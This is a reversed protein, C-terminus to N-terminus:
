FYIVIPLSYCSWLTARQMKIYSAINHVNDIWIGNSPDSAYRCLEELTTLLSTQSGGEDMEHGALVLWKGESSAMIKRIDEFSKGDLETGALQAMDCYLPDNSYESLWGRGSEFM